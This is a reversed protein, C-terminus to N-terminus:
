QCINIFSDKLPKLIFMIGGGCGTSEGYVLGYLKLWNKIATNKQIDFDILIM